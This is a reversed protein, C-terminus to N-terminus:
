TYRQRLYTLFTGGHSVVTGAGEFGPIVHKGDSLEVKIGYRNQCFSTDSPNIQSRAVKILVEGFKLKPMPLDERFEFCNNLVDDEDKYSKVIKKIVIGKMVTPLVM